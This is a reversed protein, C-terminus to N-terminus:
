LKLPSIILADIVGLSDNGTYAELAIAFATDGVVALSGIVGKYAIKAESYCALYDGIAIDTTGNVKLSVVKGTTQIPGVANDAIAEIVMGFVKNDGLTTTTTVENGAAVSKLIVVDGIALAGGSTNKMYMVKSNMTIDLFSGSNGVMITDVASNEIAALGIASFTNGSINTFNATTGDIDIGKYWNDLRNGIITNSDLGNTIYIGVHGSATSPGKLRNGSIVCEEGTALYIGYITGTVSQVIDNSLVAVKTTAIHIARAGGRIYNAVISSAAFAHVLYDSATATGLVFNSAFLSDTSGTTVYSLNAVATHVEFKNGVAVANAGKIYIGYSTGYRVKFYNDEIRQNTGGMEIRSAVVTIAGASTDNVNNGQFLLGISDCYLMQNTTGSSTFECNLVRANDGNFSVKGTTSSFGLNEVTCNTGSLAFNNAVMSIVAGYSTEGRITIGATATSIASETYTGNRVFIRTAGADIAAGLTTYDGGSSAVVAEWTTVGGTGWSLTGNGAADKLVTGAAGVAAPLTYTINAAQAGVKIATYNTGSGSPELFRLEAASAGGGFNVVAASAGAFNITTATANVLSFTTSPTTISTTVDPSTMSQVGTFTQGADTRAVSASTTPFTMVTSDTGALTLTNSVTLSKTGLALTASGSGTFTVGNVTTPTIAGAIITIAPTTTPNAVTGSFGNATAVSVSQVTGVESGDRTAIVSSMQLGM